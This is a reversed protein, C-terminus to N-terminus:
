AAGPGDDSPLTVRRAARVRAIDADSLTFADFTLAYAFPLVFLPLVGVGYLIVAARKPLGLWLAASPEDPPLALALLFGGTVLVLVIAIPWILVGLGRGDRVAGFTMMAMLCIPLAVSMIWPGFAAIAPSAFASAYAVAIGAASLVVAAFAVRRVGTLKSSTM